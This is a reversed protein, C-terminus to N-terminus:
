FNLAGLGKKLEFESSGTFTLFNSLKYKGSVAFKFENNIKAKIDFKDNVKKVGGIQWKIPCCPFSGCCGEKKEGGCCASKCDKCAVEFETQIHFDKM